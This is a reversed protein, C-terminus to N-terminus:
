HSVTLPYSIEPAVQQLVLLWYYGLPFSPHKAQESTIVPQVVQSTIIPSVDQEM